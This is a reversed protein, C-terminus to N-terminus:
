VTRGEKRLEKRVATELNHRTIITTNRRLATLSATRVVNMISGGSLEHDAAVRHLDIDEALSSKASFANQWLRLREKMGPMPFHVINQFRRTFAEDINAKLNTTLIVVGPFTEVRQLLYAVEQNAHRDHADSVQTRKGFLAEAEDFFLIWDRNEAYAFVKELNKETEGIYKSVVMSLDVRYVDLGAAKGLLCATLTKGTGPGGFFLARYGPALKKGLEWDDMLTKGHTLWTNIEDVQEYTHHDLVLDEWVYDTHVQKAPFDAGFDPPRVNGTTMLDLFDNALQPLAENLGSAGAPHELNMLNHKLLYHDPDFLAQYTFRLGLDEGALLFLATEVTPLFHGQDNVVGGFETFRKEYTSNRTLLPDLLRPRVHPILCLLLVLREPPECQYHQILRAYFSDNNELDPAEEQATVPDPEEEAFHHALRQTLVKGFWTFEHELTAANTDM